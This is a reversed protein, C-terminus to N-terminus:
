NKILKFTKTSNLTKINVFYLGINLNLTNFSENKGSFRTVLKFNKDEVINHELCQKDTLIPTFYKENKM